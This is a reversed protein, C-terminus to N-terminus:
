FKETMRDHAEAMLSDALVAINQHRANQNYLPNATNIVPRSIQPASYVKEDTFQSSWVVQQDSNRVLKLVTLIRIRFETTLVANKPLTALEKSTVPGLPDLKISDIIGVLTVPALNKSTVRAVQSREFQRIIANTFEVEIGVEQTKNEFIPIALQDYGGPLARRGFGIQYACGNLAAGLICILTIGRVSLPM